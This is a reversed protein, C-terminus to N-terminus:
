GAGLTILHGDPNIVEFDNQKLAKLYAVEFGSLAWV